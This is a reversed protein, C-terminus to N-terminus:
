KLNIRVMCLAEVEAGNLTVVILVVKKLNNNNVISDVSFCEVTEKSIKEANNKKYIRILSNAQVGSTSLYM